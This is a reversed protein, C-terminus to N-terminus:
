RDANQDRQEFLKKLWKQESWTAGFVYQECYAVSSINARRLLEGPKQGMLLRFVHLSPAVILLQDPCLPLAWFSNASGFADGEILPRDSLVLRLHGSFKKIGWHSNMAIPFGKSEKNLSEVVNPVTRSEISGVNKEYFQVPTEYTDIRALAGTIEPDSDLQQQIDAVGTRIQGVVNPRRVKLSILFRTFDAKQQRSMAEVGDSILKLHVSSGLRDIEEFHVRELYDPGSPHDPLTLLDRRYCYGSPGLNSKLAM